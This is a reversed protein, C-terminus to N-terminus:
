VNRKSPPLCDSDEFETWEDDGLEDQTDDFEDRHMYIRPHGREFEFAFQNSMARTKRVRCARCVRYYVCYAIPMVVLLCFLFLVWPTLMLRPTSTEAVGVTVAPAPAIQLEHLDAEELISKADAEDSSSSGGGGQQQWQQQQEAEETTTTTTTTSTDYDPLEPMEYEYETTSTSTTFSYIGHEPLEPEEYETTTTTTETAAFGLNGNWSSLWSFTTTPATTPTPTPTQPQPATQVCANDIIYIGKGVGILEFVIDTDAVVDAVVLSTAWYKNILPTDPFAQNYASIRAFEFGFSSVNFVIDGDFPIHIAFYLSVSKFWGTVYHAGCEIHRTSPHFIVPEEESEANITTTTTTTTTTPVATTPRLTPSLTPPMSTTIRPTPAISPAVPPLSIATPLKTNINYFYPAM